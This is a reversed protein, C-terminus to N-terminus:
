DLTAQLGAAKLRAALEIRPVDARGSRVTAILQASTAPETGATPAASSAALALAAIVSGAMVGRVRSGTMCPV